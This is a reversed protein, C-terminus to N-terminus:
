EVGYGGSRILEKARRSRLFHLFREAAVIEPSRKLLVVQQEIPQYLNEPIEWICRTREQLPLVQSLAVVGLQANGSDVYHLTQAINEGRVLKPQLARWLGLRELMQQAAVGYPATKPNAIALRRFKGGMLTEYCDDSKHGKKQKRPSWLAIRGFAYTFGSGAVAYGSKILLDPRRSDASLFIDFPAGHIIQTYLKGTSAAIIKIRDGSEAQYISVLGRLTSLFNCAVAVRLESAEKTKYGNADEAAVLDYAGLFSLLSIVSLFIKSRKKM